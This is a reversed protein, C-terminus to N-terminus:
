LSDMWRLQRETRSAVQPIAICFLNGAPSFVQNSQLFPRPKPSNRVNFYFVTRGILAPHHRSLETEGQVNVNESRVKNAGNSAECYYEDSDNKSVPKIELNSYTETTTNTQLPVVSGTRYWKFTVPGTGNVSCIFNLEEGELIALSSPIVALTMQSLPVPLVFCPLLSTLNPLM